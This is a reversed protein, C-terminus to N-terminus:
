TSGHRSVDIRSLAIWTSPHRVSVSGDLRDTTHWRPWATFTNSAPLPVDCAFSINRRHMVRRLRGGGSLATLFVIESMHLCRFVALAVLRNALPGRVPARECISEFRRLPITRIGAAGSLAARGAFAIPSWVEPFAGPEKPRCIVRSAIDSGSPLKDPQFPFPGVIGSRSTTSSLTTALRVSYRLAQEDPIDRTLCWPLLSFFGRAVAQIAL